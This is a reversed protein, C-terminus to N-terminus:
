RPLVSFPLAFLFFFFPLRVLFFAAFLFLSVQATLHRLCLFQAAAAFVHLFTRALPGLQSLAVFAEPLLAFVRHLGRSLTARQADFQMPVQRPDKWRSLCPVRRAHSRFRREHRPSFSFGPAPAGERRLRDPRPRGAKLM